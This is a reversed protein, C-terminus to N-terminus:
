LEELEVGLLVSFSPRSFWISHNRVVLPAAMQLTM